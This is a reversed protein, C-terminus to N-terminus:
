SDGDKAVTDAVIADELFTVDTSYDQYPLLGTENVLTYARQVIPALNLIAEDGKKLADLISGQVISLYKEPKPVAYRLRKTNITM